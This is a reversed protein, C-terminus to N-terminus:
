FINWAYPKMLSFADTFREGEGGSNGTCLLQQHTLLCKPRVYFLEDRSRGEEKNFSTVTRFYVKNVQQMM